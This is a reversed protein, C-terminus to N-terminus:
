YTDHEDTGSDGFIGWAVAACSWVVGVLPMGSAYFLCSVVLCAYCM